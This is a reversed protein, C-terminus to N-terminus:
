VPRRRQTRLYETTFWVGSLLTLGFATRIYVIQGTFELLHWMGTSLALLAFAVAACLAFTMLLWDVPRRLVCWRAAGIFIWAVSLATMGPYVISALVDAYTM